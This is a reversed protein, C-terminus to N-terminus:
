HSLSGKVWTDVPSNPSFRILDKPQFNPFHVVMTDNRNVTMTSHYLAVVLIKEDATFTKLLLLKLLRCSTFRSNRCYYM